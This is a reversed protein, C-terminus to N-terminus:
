QFFLNSLKLTLAIVALIACIGLLGFWVWLWLYSVRGDHASEVMRHRHQVGEWMYLSWVKLKNTMWLFAPLLFLTLTTVIVLGFAVSVAMPILFQAQFSKELMLPALGAVTTMTTLIIPRFRSVASTYLARLVRDGSKIQRNYTTVLVLADNVQIGILALVGLFSFLSIQLGMFWHGIFVGALGYPILAFVAVTQSLSRFTVAVTFFMLLLIVPLVIRASNLTKLQERNQGEMSVKVSPYNALIPPLIDDMLMLNLDTVSVDNRAIDAEVKIERQGDLHNIAIVGRKQSVNAIESLPITRGDPFRIRMSALQLLDGRDDEGYRAWVRIEDDGRQIRQIESGFFGQRVQGIVDATTIGLGDAKEKLTLHIERVGEQNNNTVDRVDALSELEKQVSRVAGQLAEYNNGLLSISVPRGFPSPQAFTLVEAEPIIGIRERIANSIMTSTITDRTEADLLALDLGGQYTTTGLKLEIHVIPKYEGNFYKSSFEENIIEATAMIRNLLELTHTERTGAPLKLDITINDRPIVPFITTSVFGGHVLGFSLFFVTTFGIMTPLPYRLTFRLVPIYIKDRMWQMFGDFIGQIHNKKTTPSLAMSHGVHAPLIFVAEVLSFVLSLIVVFGLVSFIDGIRGDFFPFASFAIVTTLIAVFVAPLVSVTGELAATMRPVGREHLQYINEAIVIGDDVLIGIVVIMGFLSIVNITIDLWYAVIFMGAFSIPISLAVWFALRWNLFLSLIVLVLVFGVMGNRRLLDIRQQLVVSGDRIINATVITNRENFEEVYKRISATIGLIDENVTNNVTVVVSPKGNMWSRNPNDAWKDRIDAIQSLRLVNGNPSVRVPIDVLENAYYGKSRARILLEEDQGKITGGTVDLNSSRVAREAEAFTIQYADLDKERFAIEIEEEPFGNLSVKSIGEIALLETQTKRAFRKLTQLDVDGSLAFSFAFGLNEQRFVVAPEMGVPFAPIRDVANRVDDLVKEVDSGKLAEVTITGINEKSVSSIREVGTIGKLNEEIKLVIGEEIEEPSAGPLVTQITIVRSEVEPFFTSRINLLGFIGSIILLIMLLDGSIPYRLFFRIIATM